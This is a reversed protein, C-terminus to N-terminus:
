LTCSEMLLEVYQKYIEKNCEKLEIYKYEDKVKTYYGFNFIKHGNVYIVDKFLFSIGKDMENHIAALTDEDLGAYIDTRIFRSFGSLKIRRELIDYEVLSFKKIEEVHENFIGGSLVWVIEHRM